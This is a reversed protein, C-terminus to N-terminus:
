DKYKNMGKKVFQIDKSHESNEVAGLCSEHSTNVSSCYLCVGYCILIYYLIRHMYYLIRHMCHAHANHWPGPNSM